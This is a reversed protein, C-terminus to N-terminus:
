PLCCIYWHQKICGWQMVSMGCTYKEDTFTLFHHLCKATLLPCPVRSYRALCVNFTIMNEGNCRPSCSINCAIRRHNQTRIAYITLSIRSQTNFSSKRSIVSGDKHRVLHAHSDCAIYRDHLGLQMTNWRISIPDCQMMIPTCRMPLPKMDM